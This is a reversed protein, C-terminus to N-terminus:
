FSISGLVFTTEVPLFLFRAEVRVSHRGGAPLDVGAVAQAGMNTPGGSTKTIGIGGGAFPTVPGVPVKYVGDAAFYLISFGGFRGVTVDGGVEVGDLARPASGINVGAIFGSTACCVVVGGEARAVIPSNAPAPDPAPSASQAHAPAAYVAMALASLALICALRRPTRRALSPSRDGYRAM